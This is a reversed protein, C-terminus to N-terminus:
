YHVIGAAAFVMKVFASSNATNCVNRRVFEMLAFVGPLLVIIM